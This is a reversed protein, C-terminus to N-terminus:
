PAVTRRVLDTLAALMADDRQADAGALNGFAAGQMASVVVNVIADFEPRTAAAPFLSRAHARVNDAHRATVPALSRALEADTRAANYLEFAAHLRPQQFV